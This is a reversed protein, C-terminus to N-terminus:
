TIHLRKIFLRLPNTKIILHKIYFVNKGQKATNLKKYPCIIAM